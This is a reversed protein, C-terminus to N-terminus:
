ALLLLVHLPLLWQRPHPVRMHRMDGDATVPWEMAPRPGPPPVASCICIDHDHDHM